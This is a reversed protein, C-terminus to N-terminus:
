NATRGYRAEMAGLSGKLRNAYDYEDQICREIGARAIQSQNQRLWRWLPFLGLLILRTSLFLSLPRKQDFNVIWLWFLCAIVPTVLLRQDRPGLSTRIAGYIHNASLASVHKM